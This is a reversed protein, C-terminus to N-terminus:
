MIVKINFISFANLMFESSKNWEKEQKCKMNTYIELTIQVSQFNLNLRCAPFTILFCEHLNM